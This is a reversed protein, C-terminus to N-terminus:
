PGQAGAPDADRRPTRRGTRADRRAKRYRESLIDLQPCQGTAKGDRDRFARCDPCGIGHTLLADYAAEVLPTM